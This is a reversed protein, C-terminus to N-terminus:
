ARAQLWRSTTGALGSFQLKGGKSSVMSPSLSHPRPVVSQRPWTAATVSSNTCSASFFGTSFGVTAATNMALSSAELWSPTPTSPRTAALLSSNKFPLYRTQRPVMAVSNVGPM